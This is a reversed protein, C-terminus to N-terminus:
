INSPTRKCLIFYTLCALKVKLKPKSDSLYFCLLLCHSRNSVAIVATWLIINFSSLLWLFRQTGKQQETRDPLFRRKWSSVTFASVNSRLETLEFWQACLTSGLPLDWLEQFTRTWCTSDQKMESQPCLESRGANWASPGNVGPYIGVRAWLFAVWCIQEQSFWLLSLNVNIFIQLIDGNCLSVCIPSKAPGGSGDGTKHACLRPKSRELCM